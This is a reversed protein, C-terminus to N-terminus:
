PKVYLGNATVRRGGGETERRVTDTPVVPSLGHRAMDRDLTDADVLFSRGSALGDYVHTEGPVPIPIRDDPRFEATHIAVLVRGGASLVRNSESLSAEWEKGSRAAHYVGLAVILDISGDAITDLRDMAGVRVRREAEEPGLVVAVRLRTEAVMATSLDLATVDFGREALFVSNRGGACGLDLVRVAGPDPYEEVLRALRHDPDRAAFRGVIEPQEWFPSGASSEPNM